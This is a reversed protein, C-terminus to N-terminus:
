NRWVETVILWMIAAWLKPEKEEKKPKWRPWLKNESRLRTKKKKKVKQKEM